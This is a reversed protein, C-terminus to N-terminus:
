RDFVPLECGTVPFQCCSVPLRYGTFGTIEHFGNVTFNSKMVYQRIEFINKHRNEM